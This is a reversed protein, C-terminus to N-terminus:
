SLPLAQEKLVQLVKCLGQCVRPSSLDLFTLARRM